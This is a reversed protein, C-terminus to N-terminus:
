VGIVKSRRELLVVDRWKENMKGLKERVGIIRFGSKQHLAISIENEPFIGAQLTWLGEKESEEVLKSLLAQGLGKGQAESAVYLSVEAVGSYVRRSSVASLAAWGVVQEDEIAVLRCVSLMSNNWEDWGKV